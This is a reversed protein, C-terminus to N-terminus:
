VRRHFLLQSQIQLRWYEPGIRRDNKQTHSIISLLKRHENGSPQGQNALMTAHCILLVYWRFLIRGIQKQSTSYCFNKSLSFHPNIAWIKTQCSPQIFKNLRLFKLFRYSPWLFKNIAFLLNRKFNSLHLVTLVIEATASQIGVSHKSFLKELKYLNFIAVAQNLLNWTNKFFLMHLAWRFVGRLGRVTTLSRSASTLQTFYMWHCCKAWHIKPKDPSLRLIMPLVEISLSFWNKTSPMKRTPPQRSFAGKPNSVFCGIIKGFSEWTM